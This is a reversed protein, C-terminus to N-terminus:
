KAFFNEGNEYIIRPLFKDTHANQIEPFKTHYLHEVIDTVCFNVHLM